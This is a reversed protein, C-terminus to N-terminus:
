KVDITGNTVAQNENAFYRVEISWEGIMEFEQTPVTISCSSNSPTASKAVPRAGNKSFTFSCMGSDSPNTIAVEVTVSSVSSSSNSIRLSSESSIPIQDTSKNQDVGPTSGVSEKDQTTPDNKTQEESKEFDSVYFPDKVFDTVRQKELAFLTGAAVILVALIVAIIILIKKRSPNSTKSYIKVKLM